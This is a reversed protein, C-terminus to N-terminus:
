CTDSRRFLKYKFHNSLCNIKNFTTRKSRKRPHTNEINKQRQTM